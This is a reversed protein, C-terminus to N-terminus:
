TPPAYLQSKFRLETGMCFLSVIILVIKDLLENKSLESKIQLIAESDKDRPKVTKTQTILRSASSALSQSTKSYAGGRDPSIM